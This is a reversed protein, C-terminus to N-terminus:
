PDEDGYEEDADGDPDVIAYDSVDAHYGMATLADYAANVCGASDDPCYWAGSVEFSSKKPVRLAAVAKAFVGPWNPTEDDCAFVRLSVLGQAKARTLCGNIAANWAPYRPLEDSLAGDIVIVGGRWGNAELVLGDRGARAQFRGLHSDASGCASGPHVIVLVAATRHSAAEILKRMTPISSM